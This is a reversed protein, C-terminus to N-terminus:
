ILFFNSSEPQTELLLDKQPAFVEQLNFSYTRYYKRSPVHLLLPQQSTWIQAFPSPNIIMRTLIRTLIIDERRNKLWPALSLISPLDGLIELYKSNETPKQISLNKYYSCIDEVAIWEIYLDSETVNKALSIGFM